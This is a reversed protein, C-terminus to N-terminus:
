FPAAALWYLQAAATQSLLSHGFSGDTRLAVHGRLYHLLATRYSPLPVAHQLLDLDGFFIAVFIPPEGEYGSARYHALAAKASTQAQELYSRQGTAQALLVGAAIMAGQNYTWEQTSVNGHSDLSDYYLGNGGALCRSVWGYMRQAWVLYARRDTAKYLRLAVLAANATSVTTRIQRLPPRGWFVGGPCADGTNTDWGSVLFRFVGEARRLMTREGFLRYGAVLDLAIWNNDDYYLDGSRGLPTLPVSRYGQGLRYDALVRFNHLADARAAEAERGPLTAFALSAALAQSLPWVHPYWHGVDSAAVRRLM